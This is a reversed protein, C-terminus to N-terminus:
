KKKSFFKSKTATSLGRLNLKNLVNNNLSTNNTTPIKGQGSFTLPGGKGCSKCAEKVISKKTKKM